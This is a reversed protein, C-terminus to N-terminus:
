YSGLDQMDRNEWPCNGPERIDRSGSGQNVSSMPVFNVGSLKNKRIARYAEASAIIANWASAGSGFYERTRCLRGPPPSEFPPFFGRTIPLYKKRGCAACTEELYRGKDALASTAVEKIDLQVVTTLENGSRHHVVPRRDIGLPRFVTEWVAPPVFYEDFVWNLQLVQRRGWKPEHKMRFPAVQVKGVGCEPCFETLDYTAKLYGFDDDPMPYGQHWGPTVKLYDAGDVELKSFKTTVWDFADWEDALVKVKLWLPNDEDIDFSVLRLPPGPEILRLGFSLLTARQEPSVNLSLRHVFKM